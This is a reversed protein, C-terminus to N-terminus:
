GAVARALDAVSVEPDPGFLDDEFARMLVELGCERANRPAHV